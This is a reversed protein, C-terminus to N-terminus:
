INLAVTIAGVRNKMLNGTYLTKQRLFPFFAMEEYNRNPAQVREMKLPFCTM